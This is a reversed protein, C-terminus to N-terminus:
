TRGIPLHRLTKEDALRRDFGMQEVDVGFESDVVASSRHSGSELSPQESWFIPRSLVSVRAPGLAWRRAWSEPIRLGLASLYRILQGQHQTEHELLDLLLGDRTETWEIGDITKALLDESRGLAELVRTKSITDAGSLSCSFGVWGDSEIANTCSERAGVVCWMQAGITNSRDTLQQALAAEPLTEIFDRYSGNMSSIHEIVIQRM